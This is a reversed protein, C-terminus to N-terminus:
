MVSFNDRAFMNWTNFDLARVDTFLFIDDTEMKQQIDHLVMSGASDMYVIRLQIGGSRGGNWQVVEQKEMREVTEKSEHVLNRGVRIEDIIQAETM